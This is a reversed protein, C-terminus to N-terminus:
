KTLHVLYDHDTYKGGESTCLQEDIRIESFHKFRQMIERKSFFHMLMGRENQVRGPGDAVIYDRQGVPSAYRIRYDKRSRLVLLMEGKLVNWLRSIVLDLETAPIYYLVAYSIIVDFFNDPFASPDEVRGWERAYKRATSSADWGYVDFGFEKALKMHRGAGCGFDLFTGGRRSALFQV